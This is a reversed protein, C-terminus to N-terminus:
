SHHLFQHYQSKLEGAEIAKEAYAKISKFDNKGVLGFETETLDNWNLNDTRVCFHKPEIENRSDLLLRKETESIRKLPSAVGLVLNTGKLVVPGGSCSVLLPADIEVNTTGPAKIKGEIKDIIGEGGAASCCIINRGNGLDKWATHLPLCNIENESAEIEVAALDRDKAALVKKVKLEKGEADKITLLPQDNIIHWCTLVYIKGDRRTAFGTGSFDFTKIVCCAKAPDAYEFIATPESRKEEVNESEFLATQAKEEEKEVASNDEPKEEAAPKEDAASTEAKKEEAISQIAIEEESAALDKSINEASINEAEDLVNISASGEGFLDHAAQATEDATQSLPQGSALPVASSANKKELWLMIVAVSLATIVM